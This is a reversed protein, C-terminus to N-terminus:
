SPVFNDVRENLVFEISFYKQIGSTDHYCQRICLAPMFLGYTLHCIAAPVPYDSKGVFRELM